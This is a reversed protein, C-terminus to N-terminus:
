AAEIDDESFPAYALTKGKEDLIEVHYQGNPLFLNIKGYMGAEIKADEKGEAPEIYEADPLRLIKVKQHKKFITQM